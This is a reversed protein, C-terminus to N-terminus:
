ETAGGEDGGTLAVVEGGEAQVLRALTPDATALPVGQDLATAAAICDVISVGAADPHRAKLEGALMALSLDLPVVDLLTAEMAELDFRVDVAHLTAMRDVVDAVHVAAISTEARILDDVEGAGVGETFFAVLGDADIQTM